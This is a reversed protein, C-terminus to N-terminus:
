NGCYFVKYEHLVEYEMSYIGHVLSNNESLALRTSCPWKPCETLHFQKKPAPLRQFPSRRGRSVCCGLFPGLKSLKENKRSFVLSM